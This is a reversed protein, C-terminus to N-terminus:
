KDYSVAIQKCVFKDVNLYKLKFFLPTLEHSGQEGTLDEIEGRLGGQSITAARFNVRRTCM